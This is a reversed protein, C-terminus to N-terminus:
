HVHDRSIRLPMWGLQRDVRLVLVRRNLQTPAHGIVAKFKGDLTLRKVRIRRLKRRCRSVQQGFRCRAAFQPMRGHSAILLDDVLNTGHPALQAPGRRSKSLGFQRCPVFGPHVIDPIPIGQAREM